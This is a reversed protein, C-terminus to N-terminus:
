VGWIKSASMDATHTWLVNPYQEIAASYSGWNEKDDFAGMHWRICLIEEYTLNLGLTQALIVSKEGHGPLVNVKVFEYGKDTERYQGVKCLDHLLGVIYPSREYKWELGLRETLRVLEMTVRRSHDYLGGEYAGHFRTSAPATFYGVAHLKDALEQIKTSALKGDLTGVFDEIREATTM